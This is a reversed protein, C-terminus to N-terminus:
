GANNPWYKEILKKAALLSIVNGGESLEYQCITNNPQDRSWDRLAKIAAIKNIPFEGAFKQAMSEVTVIMLDPNMMSYLESRFSESNICLVSFQEFSLTINM